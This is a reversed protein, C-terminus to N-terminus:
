TSWSTVNTSLWNSFPGLAATSSLNVRLTIDNAYTTNPPIDGLNLATSYSGVGDRMEHTAPFFSGLGLQTGEATHTLSNNKIQVVHSKIGGRPLDGWDLITDFELGTDDDIAIVRNPNAAPNPEGYVHLRYLHNNRAITAAGLTGRLGWAGSASFPEVYLRWSDWVLDNGTDVGTGSWSGGPVTHADGSVEVDSFFLGEEAAIPQALAAMAWIGFLDRQSPFLMTVISTQFVIGSAIVASTNRENNLDSLDTSGSETVV